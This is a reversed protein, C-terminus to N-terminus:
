DGDLRCRHGDCEQVAGDSEIRSNIVEIARQATCHPVHEGDIMVTPGSECKEFCFGARVDLRGELGTQEAHRLVGNLVDQSGKVFCNTGLCVSVKLKDEGQTQM